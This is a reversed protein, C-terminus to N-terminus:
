KFGRTGDLFKLSQLEDFDVYNVSRCLLQKHMYASVIEKRFLIAM